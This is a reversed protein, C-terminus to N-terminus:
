TEEDTRRDENKRRINVVKKKMASVEEKTYTPKPEPPPLLALWVEGTYAKFGCKNCKRLRRVGGLQKQTLVVYTRDGCDKCKM